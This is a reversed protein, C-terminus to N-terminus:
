KNRANRNKRLEVVLDYLAQRAEEKVINPSAGIKKAVEKQKFMFAKWVNEPYSELTLALGSHARNDSATFHYSQSGIDRISHCYVCGNRGTLADYVPKPLDKLLALPNENVLRFSDDTLGYYPAQRM